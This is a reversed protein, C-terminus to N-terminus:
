EREHNACAKPMAVCGGERNVVGRAIDPQIGFRWGYVACGMVTFGAIVRWARNRCVLCRQTNRKKM